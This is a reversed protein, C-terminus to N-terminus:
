HIALAKCVFPLVNMKTSEDGPIMTPGCPLKLSHDNFSTLSYTARLCSSLELTIILTM